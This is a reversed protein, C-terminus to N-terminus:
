YYPNAYPQDDEDVYVTTQSKKKGYKELDFRTTTRLWRRSERLAAGPHMEQEIHYEYKPHTPVHVIM